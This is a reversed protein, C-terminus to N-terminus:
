GGGEDPGGTLGDMQEAAGANRRAFFLGVTPKEKTAYDLQGSNRLASGDLDSGVPVVGQEDVAGGDAAPRHAAIRQILAIIGIIERRVQGRTLIHEGYENM